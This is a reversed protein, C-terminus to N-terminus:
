RVEWNEEIAIEIDSKNYKIIKYDDNERREVRFLRIADKNLFESHNFMKLFSEVCEFSHTTSIIQINNDNALRFLVKWLLDLSSHYLGNEIEDILIVGNPTITLDITYVLIKLIGDGMIGVPALESYNLDAYIDNGILELDVLNLDIQRLIDIIPNNKKKIAISSFKKGLGSKLNSPVILRGNTTPEYEKDNEIILPQIFSGREIAEPPPLDKNIKAKSDFNEVEEGKKRIQTKLSIGEIASEVKSSSDKIMSAHNRDYDNPYSSEIKSSEIIPSSEMIPTITVNREENPNKLKSKLTIINNLDLKYFLSKWIEPDLINMPKWGYVKPLLAANAPNILQYIAELISTKGCNNKGVILNFQKLDNLKLDKLAHFNEIEISKFLQNRV